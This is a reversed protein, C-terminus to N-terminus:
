TIIYNNYNKKGNNPAKSIKQFNISFQIQPGTALSQNIVM